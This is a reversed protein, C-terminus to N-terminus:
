APAISGFEDRLCTWKMSSQSVKWMGSTKRTSTGPKMIPRFASCSPVRRSPIRTTYVAACSVTGM